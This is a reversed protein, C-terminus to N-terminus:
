PFYLGYVISKSCRNTPGVPTLPKFREFLYAYKPPIDPVMHMMRHSAWKVSLKCNVTSMVRNWCLSFGVITHVEGFPLSFFFLISQLGCRLWCFTPFMIVLHRPLFLVQCLYHGSGQWNFFWIWLLVNIFFFYKQKSNFFLIAAKTFMPFVM